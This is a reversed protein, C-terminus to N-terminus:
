GAADARGEEHHAPAVRVASIDALRVWDTVGDDSGLVLDTLGSRSDWAARIAQVHLEADDPDTVYVVQVGSNLTIILQVM